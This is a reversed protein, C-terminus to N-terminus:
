TSDERRTIGGRDVDEPCFAGSRNGGPEDSDPIRNGEGALTGTFDWATDYEAGPPWCEACGLSIGYTLSRAITSDALLLVAAETLLIGIGNDAFEAREVVGTAQQSLMLGAGSNVAFSSSRIVLESDGQGYLGFTNATFVSEEVLVSAQGMLFIGFVHRTFECEAVRIERPDLAMLAPGDNAEFRCGILEVRVSEDEPEVWDRSSDIVETRCEVGAGGNSRVTVNEMRLSANRTVRVGPGEFPENTMADWANFGNSRISSDVITCDGWETVYVGPGQNEVIECGRLHLAGTEFVEAAAAKAGTLTCEELSATSEGRVLVAYEGGTFTCGQVLVDSTLAAILGADTMRDFSCDRVVGEADGIGIGDHAERFVSRDVRLEGKEAFIATNRTRDFQCDAVQASGRVLLDFSNGEFACRALDVTTGEDSRIATGGIEEFRSDRATLRGGTLVWLLPGIYVGRTGVIAVNSLSLDADSEIPCIGSSVVSLDELAVSRAAHLFSLGISRDPLPALATEAKGRGHLTVDKWLTLGERFEGAEIEVTGGPLVADVAAQVTAYDEPVRVTELETQGVLPTRLDVPAYRGLAAGNGEFRNGSGTVVADATVVTLGYAGNDYLGCGEVQVRENGYVSIGSGRCDRVVLSRFVAAGSAQCFVGDPLYSRAGHVTFGELVIRASESGRITVIPGGSKPGLLVREPADVFGRLTISKEITVNEAYERAQLQIVAGEPAADIAAQLSADPPVILIRVPQSSVSLTTCLIGVALVAAVFRIRTV